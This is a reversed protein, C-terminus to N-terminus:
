VTWILVNGILVVACVLMLVGKLRDGRRLIVIGGWLLAFVGAVLLALVTSATPSLQTEM